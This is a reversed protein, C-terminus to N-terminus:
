RSSEQIEILIAQLAMQFGLILPLASLMVTGTSAVHGSWSSKIWHYVGFGVGWSLLFAGCVWFMAVPSFDRLIYKQYIRYWFRRGLYVPFTAVVHKLRMSSREEGYRAPIAVDKVKARVVNLHVLMDNEFFYRRALRGLPLKRLTGADVAVFGNQPDFVQWYGSVLKTWFTLLYNGILRVKPMRRLQEEDLFRNGKAYAYGEVVIADLLAPLYWPDMQGDGDMKVVVDAGCDLALTFGTIMAGGVGQNVPHYVVRLRADEVRGLVEGTEDTAADNVVIIEDVFEPIGKIVGEVCKAVNYAPIVVAVKRGAYM